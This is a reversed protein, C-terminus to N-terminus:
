RSPFFLSALINCLNNWNKKRKFPNTADDSREFRNEKLLPYDKRLFSLGILGLVQRVLHKM